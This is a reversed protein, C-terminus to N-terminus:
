IVYRRVVPYNNWNKLDEMEQWESIQDDSRLFKLVSKEPGGNVRRWELHHNGLDEIIFNGFCMIDLTVRDIQEILSPFRADVTSNEKLLGFLRDLDIDKPRETWLESALKNQKEILMNLIDTSREIEIGLALPRGSISALNAISNAIQGKLYIIPFSSNFLLKPTLTFAPFPTGQLSLTQHQDNLDVLKKWENRKPKSIQSRYNGVANLHSAVIAAARNLAISEELNKRRRVSLENFKFAIFAGVFTSTITPIANTAWFQKGFEFLAALDQAPTVQSM